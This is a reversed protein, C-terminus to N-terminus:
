AVLCLSNWFLLKRSPNKISHPCGVPSGVGRKDRAQPYVSPGYKSVRGFLDQIADLKDETEKTIKIWTSANSLLSPMICSEYLDIASEVGGIAQMRYYEVVARFSM